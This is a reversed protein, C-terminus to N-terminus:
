LFIHESLYLETNEAIIKPFFSSSSSPSSVSKESLPIPCIRAIKPSCIESIPIAKYLNIFRVPAPSIKDMATLTVIIPNYPIIVPLLTEM